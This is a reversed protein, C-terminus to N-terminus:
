RGYEQDNLIINMPNNNIHEAEVEPKSEMHAKRGLTKIPIPPAVEISRHNFNENTYPDSSVPTQVLEAVMPNAIQLNNSKRASMESLKESLGILEVCTNNNWVMLLLIMMTFTM